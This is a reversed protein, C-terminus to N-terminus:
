GVLNLQLAVLEANCVLKQALSLQNDLLHNETAHTLDDMATTLAPVISAGCKLYPVSIKPHRSQEGKKSLEFKKEMIIATENESIVKIILQKAEFEWMEALEKYMLFHLAALRYYENNGSYHENLYSIIATKLSYTHKENFQGLLSEFQDNKILSDFCYYMEGFRGIGVLLKVILNWSKANTLANNLTKCKQLVNVIGEMSCEHVFCDHVKILLEVNITNQKKHSLIQNQLLALLNNFIKTEFTTKKQKAQMLEEATVKEREIDRYFKIAECYELLHNGLLTTNPCLELILHFQDNLDFGWL